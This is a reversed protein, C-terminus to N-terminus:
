SVDQPKSFEKEKLIQLAKWNQGQQKVADEATNGFLKM